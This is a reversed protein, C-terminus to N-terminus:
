DKWREIQVKVNQPATGGFSTRSNVSAEVSLLDIAEKTIRSEIKHFESLPMDCLEAFGNQEAHKVVAGVIHHAERFPLGLERVLWDALDTATSYGM